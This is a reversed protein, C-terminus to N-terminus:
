PGNAVPFDRGLAPLGELPKDAKPPRALELRGHLARSPTQGPSGSSGQWHRTVASFGFYLNAQSIPKRLFFVRFPSGQVQSRNSVKLTFTEAPM